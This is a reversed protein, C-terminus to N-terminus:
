DALPTQYANMAACQWVVFEDFSARDEIVMPDNDNEIQHDFHHYTFPMDDADRIVTIYESETDIYFPKRFDM